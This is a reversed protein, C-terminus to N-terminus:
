KNAHLTIRLTHPGPTLLTTSNFIATAGEPITVTCIATDGKIHWASEVRGYPTDLWGSAHTLSGTTDPQPAIGITGDPLIDIGLSRTILWAGISGFSYHNFSNMSNNKGFGDYHTYSDLREWITTAGQSVPYLWSPYTKTTLMRYAIDPRGVRSLAEAIWATGIFGTMLSYPPCSIGNDTINEREIAAIFRKTFKDSNYIGMAIPLAYSVQTDVTLGAKEPEFLSRRTLGTEEDVYTDVFFQKRDAQRAEFAEAEADHGLIRAARAMIGLDHIYYCEWLLSKDTRDYEPSLWDALDGWQRNQVIIGTTPDITKNRLYEMYRKMSPYHERLLELDSYRLYCEWPVTIGASGWLIGGFGFGTPAVDPYRADATQCDRISTCYQRLLPQLDALRTATPAFVSIDGMWGLRENRQPCDTPISIFNGRTSWKINEWLRNVMTDSCEYHAKFQHISSLVVAKVKESPLPSGVGTIEMYRFGHLTSRPSFHEVPKGASRYIDTCIAARLNETMLRGANSAYREIDPYLTEAYRLAVEQGRELGQFEILPVGTMNQGFDYIYTGPSPETMAVATLTDVALVRDGFAPRLNIDSWGGELAYTTSDAAIETAPLWRRESEPLARTADYIEGQFFSGEALPGDTSVEWTAPDTLIEMHSGDTFEIDIRALFSQRDGYFNWNEGVFTAGGSWWGEALQVEVTNKGEAILATIDYTHYLHTRNYQTSGPLFYDESTRTGNIALTYIGRATAEATAKAIRSGEPILFTTRLQPLSIEPLRITSTKSIRHDSRYILNRPERFNRIEIREVAATGEEPIEVRLDALVPFAMYDGGNGVPGVGVKGVNKGNLWIETYGLNSAVEVHNPRGALVEASADILPGAASDAPHYGRRFLRLRGASADLEIRIGSSDPENAIAFINLRPNSLRPDNVGYIMSAMKGPALTMDYEMRFVPLYPAYLQMHTGDAGIWKAGGPLAAGVALSIAASLATAIYKKMAEIITLECFYM